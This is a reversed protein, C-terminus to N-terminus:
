CTHERVVEQIDRPFRVRCCEQFEHEWVYKITYGAKIYADHTNMTARYRESFPGLDDFKPHGPPNGHWRNGHFLWVTKTAGQYGDPAIKRDPVLGKKESGCRVTRGEVNHFTIRHGIKINFAREVRDFCKQAM